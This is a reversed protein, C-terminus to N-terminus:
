GSTKIRPDVRRYAFDTLMNAVIVVTSSFFLIGLLTPFDRRLISQFALRGLGPWSFVTEVLIAGSLLQSFQLGAMTIIPLVANRLAHKYIVVNESLGKARATRIYDSGLVDLMSARALRSYQALYVIALTSMPLVLHHLVDLAQRFAGAKLSPDYLGGVPFIPIFLAFAILLLIGTWFVPASYGVLSLVTVLHSFWSNPRQASIVGLLTGIVVALVLASLILLLTAPLRQLILDLVPQNFYYSYGLDGQVVRSIYIWLQELVPKDLGYSKRISNIIEETAGGMEGAITLAPYGPAIRILLFNFVIVAFVLVVAHSLKKLFGTLDRMWNAEM